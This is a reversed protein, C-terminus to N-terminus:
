APEEDVLDRSLYAEKVLVKETSHKKVPRARAVADEVPM